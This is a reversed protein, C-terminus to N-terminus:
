KERNGKKQRGKEQRTKEQHEKEQHGKEQRTKEQHGKELTVALTPDEVLASGGLVGGNTGRHGVSLSRWSFPCRTANKIGNRFAITWASIRLCM